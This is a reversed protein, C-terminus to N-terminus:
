NQRLGQTFHLSLAVHSIFSSCNACAQKAYTLSQGHSVLDVVRGGSSGVIGVVSASKQANELYLAMHAIINTHNKVM